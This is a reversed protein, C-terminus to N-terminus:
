RLGIAKEIVNLRSDLRALTKAITALSTQGTVPKVDMSSLTEPGILNGYVMRSHRPDYTGEGGEGQEPAFLPPRWEPQADPLEFPPLYKSPQQQTAVPNPDVPNWGHRVPRHPRIPPHTRPDTPLHASVNQTALSDLTTPASPPFAPYSAQPEGPMAGAYGSPWDRLQKAFGIYAPVRNGPGNESAPTGIPGMNTPAGDLLWLWLLMDLKMPNAVNGYPDVFRWANVETTCTVQDYTAIAVPQPGQGFDTAFPANQDCTGWVNRARAHTAQYTEYAGTGPTQGQLRADVETDAPVSM